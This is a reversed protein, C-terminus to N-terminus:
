LSKKLKDSVHKKRLEATLYKPQDEPFGSQKKDVGLCFCYLVLFVTKRLFAKKAKLFLVRHLYKRRSIM